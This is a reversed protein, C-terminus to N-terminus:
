RIRLAKRAVSWPICAMLLWVWFPLLMTNLVDFGVTSGTAAAIVFLLNSNTIAFLLSDGSNGLEQSNATTCAASTGVFVTQTGGSLVKLRVQKAANTPLVTCTATVAQQGAASFTLGGPATAVTNDSAIVVPLSNASTKQGVTPATSGFWARINQSGSTDADVLAASLFTAVIAGILFGTLRDLWKRPRRRTWVTM